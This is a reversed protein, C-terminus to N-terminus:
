RKIRVDGDVGEAGIKPLGRYCSPKQRFGREDAHLEEVLEGIDQNSLLLAHAPALDAGLDVVDSQRHGLDHRDSRIMVAFGQSDALAIAETEVIRQHQGDCEGPTGADDIGLVHLVVKQDVPSKADDIWEALPEAM